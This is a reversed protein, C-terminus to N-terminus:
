DVRIVGMMGGEMHEAIHCHFLWDGPNDAVIGMEVREGPMLLVTDRWEARPPPRGQRTLPKMPLGHLHMPHPWATDNIMTLVCTRRRPLIFLPKEMTGEAAVGNLAWAKGRMMLSRADLRKGGLTAESMRGMMGGTLTITHRIPDALDPEPQTNRPLAPVPPLAGRRPPADAYALDTLRYARARYFDDVVRYRQGPTGTADLILDARMAPGLVIREGAPV